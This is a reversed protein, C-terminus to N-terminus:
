KGHRYPKGAQYGRLRDAISETLEKQNLRKALDLAQRATAAAEAFQRTEAYAAALSDLVRASRDGSLESAQRALRVAEQGNRLADDPCTALLWALNSLVGPEEPSHKMAARLLEIARDYQKDRLYLTLLNDRAPGHDPKFRLAENFWRIAQDTKGSRAFAIGLNNCGEVHGPRRRLLEALVPVAQDLKGQATLVVGLNNAARDLTPDAVVAARLHPEAESDRGQKHLLWGLDNRAEAHQPKLALVHQYEAMAQEVQGSQALAAGLNYHAEAFSPQIRLAERYQEIAEAIQGRAALALGLNNRALAFDPKCQLARGFAEIAEVLRGQQYYIWGMNNHPSPLAPKLEVAQRLMALAREPEGQKFLAWGLNSRAEAFDPRIRLARRYYAAAQEFKGRMALALGVDNLKHCQEASERRFVPALLSEVPAYDDTLVLGGSRAELEAVQEPSLLTGPWTNGNDGDRSSLDVGVRGAVVVFTDRSTPDLAALGTRGRFVWVHEFTERLTRVIAGLFRGTALVDIVNLMYVGDDALLKRLKENFEVTTLHFPIVYHNFADGYIFDFRRPPSGAEADRLLDDVYNAADMHRIRIGADPELGLATRAAITVEPDIEAVDIESGPWTAEVYRPFTYGGGGLFLTRLPKGGRALRHTVAAYLREYDYFLRNPDGMLVWSHILSDLWLSRLQPEDSEEIVRIFSYASETQFVVDNPLPERLGLDVTAARAWSWPSVLLLALLILTVSWARSLWSGIALAAGTVGLLGSVLGITATSGMAAIFWYGTLFTGVISGIAGWAYVNGVTRGTARGQDLAMKAVVPAVTGLLMAPWLFVLGVHIAIRTSWGLSGLSEWGGVARNLPLSLLCLLSSLILLVSLSRAPPYRDALRGGVYNGVALGTLVVGIVSTWTYLSAGLHRAIMRGAVLEVVMVCFSALFAVACPLIWDAQRLRPPLRFRPKAPEKKKTTQKGM